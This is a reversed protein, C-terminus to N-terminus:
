QTFRKSKESKHKSRVTTGLMLVETGARNKSTTGNGRGILVEAKM